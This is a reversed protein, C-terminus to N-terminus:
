WFGRMLNGPDASEPVPFSKIKKYTLPFVPAGTKEWHHVLVEPLIVGLDPLVERAPNQLHRLPLLNKKLFDQLTSALFYEGHM